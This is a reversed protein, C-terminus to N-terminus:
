VVWQCSNATTLPQSVQKPGSSDIGGSPLVASVGEHPVVRLHMWYSSCPKLRKGSRKWITMGTMTVTRYGASVTRSCAAVIMQASVPAPLFPRWVQVFVSQKSTPWTTADVAWASLTTAALHTVGKDTSLAYTGQPECEQLATAAQPILPVTHPRPPKGPRGKGDFLVISEATVNETRLKM